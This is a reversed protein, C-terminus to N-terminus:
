NPIRDNAKDLTSIYPPCQGRSLQHRLLPNLDINIRDYNLFSDIPILNSRM